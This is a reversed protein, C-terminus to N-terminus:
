KVLMMKKTSQFNGAELKYIYIGSTLNSANFEAEYNGADKTENMLTAVKEGLINFVSLNVNSRQAISFSIITSPNFPNPYNQNLSYEAVPEVEINIIDSYDFTGDFDIQKLRYSFSGSSMLDDNYSYNSQETTTGRGAM